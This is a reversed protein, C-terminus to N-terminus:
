FTLSGTKPLHKKFLKKKSKALLGLFGDTYQLGSKDHLRLKLDVVKNIISKLPSIGWNNEM